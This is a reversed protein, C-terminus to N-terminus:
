KLIMEMMRITTANLQALEVLLNDRSAQDNIKQVLSLGAANVELLEELIVNGAEAKTSAFHPHKTRAHALADVIASHIAFPITESFRKDSQDSSESSESSPPNDRVTFIHGCQRCRCKTQPVISYTMAPIFTQADVDGVIRCMPCQIREKQM